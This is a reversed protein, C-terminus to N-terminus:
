KKFRVVRSYLSIGYEFPKPAFTNKSGKVFEVKDGNDLYKAGKIKSPMQIEVNFPEGNKKAVNENSSMPIGNIVCYFYKDDELMIGNIANIESNKAEYVFNKNTKIWLGLNELLAKELPNILGNPLLGTNLLYNCNCKRCEVLSSILHPVTKFAIDLKTYGWHDTLGDCMEGAIEKGKTKVPAPKGREFTVSDIEKHSIEGEGVLGTNNIIMAEPQHKRIVAYLKDFEWDEINPKSWSGDFWFGGIKGYNTCLLEVSDRLYKLYKKFNTNYNKQTWDLLTHYFFPVIGQKNCEDVFEKILDRKIASHMADFDSLGKTDYLSFGDHHRTTLTIYKAGAKKATKVLEKAWNKKVLFKKPLENIYKEKDCTPDNNFHWEGKGVISFLGFHVFLGMGLSEFRKIYEPKM